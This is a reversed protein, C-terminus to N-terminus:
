FFITETFPRASLYLYTSADVSVDELTLHEYHSCELQLTYTLFPPLLVNISVDDNLLAYTCEHPNLTNLYMLYNFM